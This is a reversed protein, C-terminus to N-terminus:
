APPCSLIKSLQTAVDVGLLKVQTVWEFVMHCVCSKAKIFSQAKLTRQFRESKAKETGSFGCLSQLGSTFLRIVIIDELVLLIGLSWTYRLGSCKPPKEYVSM